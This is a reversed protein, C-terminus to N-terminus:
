WDPEIETLIRIRGSDRKLSGTICIQYRVSDEQDRGNRPIHGLRDQAEQHFASLDPSCIPGLQHLFLPLSQM